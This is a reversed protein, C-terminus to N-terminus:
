YGSFVSGRGFPLAVRTITVSYSRGRGSVSGCSAAASESPMIQYASKPVCM